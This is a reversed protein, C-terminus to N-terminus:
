GRIRSDWQPLPGPVPRWCPRSNRTPLRNKRSNESPIDIINLKQDQSPIIIKDKDNLDKQLNEQDKELQIPTPNM